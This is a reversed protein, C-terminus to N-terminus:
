LFVLLFASCGRTLDLPGTVIFRTAAAVLSLLAGSFRRCIALMALTAARDVPAPRKTWCVCPRVPGSFGVVTEESVRDSVSPFFPSSFGKKKSGTALRNRGIFCNPFFDVFFGLDAGNLRSIRMLSGTLNRSSFSNSYKTRRSVDSCPKSKKWQLPTDTFPLAWQIGRRRSPLRVIPHRETPGFVVVVGSVFVDRPVNWVALGIIRSTVAFRFIM